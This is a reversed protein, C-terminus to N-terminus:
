SSFWGNDHSVGGGKTNGIAENKQIRDALEAREAPDSM